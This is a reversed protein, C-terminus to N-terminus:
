NYSREKWHVKGPILHYILSVLNIFGQYFEFPIMLFLSTGKDLKSFASSLFLWIMFIRFIGLSLGLYPNYWGLAFVVPVFLSDLVLIFVMIFPLRFVGRLWRDRQLVLEKISKVPMSFAM